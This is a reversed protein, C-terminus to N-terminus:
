GYWIWLYLYYLVVVTLAGFCFGRLWGQKLARDELTVMVDATSRKHSRESEVAAARLEATRTLDKGDYDM